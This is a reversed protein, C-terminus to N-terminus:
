GGQGRRFQANAFIDETPAAGPCLDRVLEWIRDTAEEWRGFFRGQLYGELARFLMCVSDNIVAM